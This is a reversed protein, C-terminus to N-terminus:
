DLLFCSTKDGALVTLVDSSLFDNLVEIPVGKLGASISFIYGHPILDFILIGVQWKGGRDLGFGTETTIIMDLCIESDPRTNISIFM